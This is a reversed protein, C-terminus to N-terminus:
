VWIWVQFFSWVFLLNFFFGSSVVYLWISCPCPCCSQSFLPVLLLCLMLLTRSILWSLYTKLGIVMTIYHIRNYLKFLTISSNLEHSTYFVDIMWSVYFELLPLCFSVCYHHPNHGEKPCRVMSFSNSLWEVMLVLNHPSKHVLLSVM